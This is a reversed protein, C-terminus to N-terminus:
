QTHKLSHGRPQESPAQLQADCGQLVQQIRTSSSRVLVASGPGLLLWAARDPWGEQDHGCSWTRSQFGASQIPDGVRHRRVGPAAADLAARTARREPPAM